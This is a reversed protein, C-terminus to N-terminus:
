RSPASRPSRGRTGTPAPSSSTARTSPGCCRPVGTRGTRRWGSTWSTGSTPGPWGTGVEPITPSRRSTWTWTSTRGRHPQLSAARAPLAAGDDLEARGAVPLLAPRSRHRPGPPGGQRAWDEAQQLLAHGLGRGRASPDLGAIPHAPGDDCEAVAVVGTDLDGFVLAPQDETCLAGALEEPAPPDPM